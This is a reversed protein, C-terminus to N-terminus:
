EHAPAMDWAEATLVSMDGGRTYLKVGLSDSRTPYIRQTICQRGNAFVELVSHDLFIRLKLTEGRRLEFPAEQTQVNRTDEPKLATRNHCYPYVIRNDLSSQGMVVKLREVAPDYAIGTQEAGDPSCRVKVGFEGTGKAEMELALELADGRAWELQRESNASVAVKRHIRHNM